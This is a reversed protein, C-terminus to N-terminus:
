CFAPLSPPLPLTSSTSPLSGFFFIPTPSNLSALVVFLQDIYCWLPMNSMQKLLYAYLGTKPASASGLALESACVAAGEVSCVLPPLSVATTRIALVQHQPMHQQQNKQGLQRLPRGTAAGRGLPELRGRRGTRQRAEHKEGRTEKEDDRWWRAVM